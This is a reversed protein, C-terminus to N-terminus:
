RPPDEIGDKGRLVSMLVDYGVRKAEKTLDLLMAQHGAQHGRKYAEVVIPNEHNLFREDDARSSAGIIWGRRYCAFREQPSLPKMM